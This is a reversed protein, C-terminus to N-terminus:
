AHVGEAVLLLAERTGEALYNVVGDLDMDSSVNNNVGGFEVNVTATTFRNVAEREALDRLYKLNDESFEAIGRVNGAIDEIDAAMLDMFDPYGEGDLGSLDVYDGVVIERAANREENELRIRDAEAMGETWISGAESKLYELYDWREQRAAANEAEKDAREASRATSARKAEDWAESGWSVKGGRVFDQFQDGFPMLVKALWSIGELFGNIIAEFARMVGSVMFQFADQMGHCVSQWAEGLWEMATSLKSFVTMIGFGAWVIGSRLATCVIQWLVNFGGVVNAVIVIAAAVASLIAIVPNIAMATNLALQAVKWAVMAGVIGWLIPEIWTWNNAFVNYIFGAVDMITGLINFITDIVPVLGDIVAAIRPMNDQIAQMFRLVIPYLKAGVETRIDTFANKIQEIQGTPTNSMSQYLGDWSQAVIDKIVLAREMETGNSIIDKQVETLKFGKKALGDYSGELAKGLQTAYDVMQKYDVAAGGSMGAAYDTLTDMMSTLAETDKLYTSLEAAGGIMATNHYMGSKQIDAAKQRVALLDSEMAGQNAMVNVLQQEARIRQDAYDMSGRFFNVVARTGFAVGMLGALKGINQQLTDALGGGQRLQENFGRQAQESQGLNHQINYTNAIFAGASTNSADIGARVAGFNDAQEIRAAQEAVNTFRDAVGSLSDFMRLAPETVSDILTLRTQLNDM